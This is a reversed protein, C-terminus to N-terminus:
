VCAIKGTCFQQIMIGCLVLPAAEHGGSGAVRACPRGKGLAVHRVWREGATGVCLWAKGVDWGVHEDVFGM